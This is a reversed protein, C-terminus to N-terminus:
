RRRRRHRGRQRRGSSLESSATASFGTAAIGLLVVFAAGTRMAAGEGTVFSAVPNGSNGPGVPPSLPPGVPPSVPPGVPPSLPPGVPPSVPPKGPPPGAQADATDTGWLLFLATFAALLSALLFAHTIGGSARTAESM